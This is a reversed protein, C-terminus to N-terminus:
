VSGFGLSEVFAAVKTLVKEGVNPTERLQRPKLELLDRLTVVGHSQELANLVRIEFAGEWAALPLNLILKHAKRRMSPPALQWTSLEGVTRIGEQELLYLDAPTFERTNELSEDLLEDSGQPRASPLLQHLLDISAEWDGRELHVAIRRAITELEREDDPSPFIARRRIAQFLQTAAHCWDGSAMHEVIKAAVMSSQARSLGGTIALEREVTQTRSSM